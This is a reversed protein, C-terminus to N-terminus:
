QGLFAKVDDYVKTVHYREDYYTYTPDDYNNVYRIRDGLTDGFTNNIVRWLEDHERQMSAHIALKKFTLPIGDKQPYNQRNQEIHADVTKQVLKFLRVERFYGETTPATPDEPNFEGAVYVSERHPTQEGKVQAEDCARRYTSEQLGKADEFDEQLMMSEKFPWEYLVSVGGEELANGIIWKGTVPDKKYGSLGSSRIVPRFDEMIVGEGKEKVIAMAKDIDVSTVATQHALEHAIGGLIYLDRVIPHAKSYMSNFVIAPSLEHTLAVGAAGAIEPDDEQLIPVVIDFVEELTAGYKSVDVGNERWIQLFFQRLKPLNKEVKEPLPLGKEEKRRVIKEKAVQKMTEYTKEVKKRTEPDKKLEAEREPDSAVPIGFSGITTQKLRKEAELDSKKPNNYPPGETM